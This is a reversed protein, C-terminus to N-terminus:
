EYRLAVTPDVLSARRAPLYAACAAVAALVAAAMGLSVPDAGSIGYLLGSVLRQSVIAAPIGIALGIAVLLVVERMILWMVNGRPAGLAMRLGVENTRRAVAYSLVGYIGISALAMALMGFFMSLRAMMKDGALTSDVQDALTRVDAIPLRANAQAIAQRIAPIMGHTDGRYRVVLNGLFQLHQADPYFAMPTPTERLSEYKADKVVGVVEYENSKEPSLGFRLGIPSEGGFFMRAMTENIIAVRPSKDTDGPGFPRGLIVPLGMADCFGPGVVNGHVERQSQPLAPRGNAYAGTTWAGPEFTFMSFSAARVGPVEAVRQEVQRYIGTLRADDDKFGLFATDLGVLLVNDKVFGTNVNRLNALSHMFLGAGTLLLASFAVQSVILAKALTNRSRTLGGSRADKLSSSLDVRTARLAPALGFLIGTAVSLLTTFLLVTTDPAVHLPLAQSGTSVMKVLLRGAWAAFGIGAAGGVLALLVSETLMQRILRVRGAGVSLRVAIERSRNAARALLLNAVNACAILLVLGVATMLMRLPNSYQQRLHSLGRGGPTLLISAKRISSEDKESLKGGAINRLSQKFLVNVQANAQAMSVGPKLRGVIYLCQFLPDGMSKEGGWAPPVQGNMALPIWLDPSEGVTTGFFEPAAVGVITFDTHGITLTRGVVSPDRAFRRQWWSYSMVAVPYAGPTQDEADSFTRGATAKVGLVDFYTGSVLRARVPEPEGGGVAVRTDNPLSMMSAVSSFVDNNRQADRYFPYSFLQWSHDPMGDTIGTWQGKGFLALQDPETVPLSRLMVANMLSFIATNGGIGLALSLVAAATFGPNKGMMRVAYRLDQGLRELSAWGWMEHMVERLITVNGFARRAAYPAEGPSLGRERQEEEELEIHARIEREVDREREDRGLM